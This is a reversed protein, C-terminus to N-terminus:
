PTRQGGEWERVYRNDGWCFVRGDQTRGVSHAYGCAVEAWTWPGPLATPVLVQEGLSAGVQRQTNLGWGYLRGEVDVAFAHLGLSSASHVPRM